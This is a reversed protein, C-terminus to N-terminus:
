FIVKLGLQMIRPGTVTDIRGFAPSNYTTNPNGLNAHNFANFLEWRFELKTQETISTSKFLSFDLNYQGPGFIANRGMNGYTGLAPLAFAATNFYAARQEDFSRDPSLVPNGTVDARQGGGGRLARDTGPTVTLPSGSVYRFIGNTRWGQTFKSIVGQKGPLPLDYLFSTVFNHRRDFDAPGHEARMNMPDQPLSANRDLSEYDLAKSWTYNMMLYFGKSFRRNASVQLSHYTSNGTTAAEDIGQFNTDLRRADINGATSLPKGDPGNGPIYIAPNIERNLWLRTGKSGVYGASVVFEAPLQQQITFNWQQNYPTASNPDFFRSIPMPLIFKYAKRASADTPATFPYPDGGPFGNWPDEFSSPNPISVNLVFPQNLQTENLLYGRETNYFIGYASRVSTKSDPGFPLWAFGIRPALNNWDKNYTTPSVGPDGPILLGPPANPLLASQQGRHFAIIENNGDHIGFYPEYRLGFNVTLNPRAKWDDQVFAAFTNFINDSRLTSYQQFNTPLGLMWEAWGNGARTGGFNFSAGDANFVEHRNADSFAVEVGLRISHAGRTFALTDRVEHAFPVVDFYTNGGTGFYGAFSGLRTSYPYQPDQATTKVGFYQYRLGPAVAPPKGPFQDPLIPDAARVFALRNLTYTLSNLVAPTIIRTYNAVIHNNTWHNFGNFLPLGANSKTYTDYYFYSVYIRDNPTFSHDFRTVYQDRTDSGPANFILQNGNINPLPFLLNGIDVAAKSFRSAPIQDNPFRAGSLPDIPKTKSQSFDGAREAPTPLVQGTNTTASSERLSEWSFFLFTKDKIIPGGLSAGFQNRKLTPKTVLGAHGFFSRADLKDNRLYEYVSGHYQNTGSKTVATVLSGAGRGYEASFSSSLVSFEQLADPNPTSTPTGDYVDNNHGGDLLVNNDNGRAGNVSIGDEESLSVRAGSQNVAGPILTQLQLANRGNLPLDEILQNTVVTRVTSTVTELGTVVGSVEVTESVQGIQLSFNVTLSQEATLNIGARSEKKFGSMVVDLRYNGVPLRQFNYRGGTDSTTTEKLGTGENTLTVEAGPVVGGSTDSVIGVITANGQAYVNPVVLMVCAALLCLRLMM